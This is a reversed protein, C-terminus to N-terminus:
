TQQQQLVADLRFSGGGLILLVPAIVALLGDLKEKDPGALLIRHGAKALNYAIGSGMTGAAGIIAITQKM